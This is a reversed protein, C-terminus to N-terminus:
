GHGANQRVQRVVKAMVDFSDPRSSFYTIGFRQRTAEISAAMEDISGFLLFPTSMADEVSLQIGLPEVHKCFGAAAAERDDTEHVWQLLANLEIEGFRSGAADKVIDIRGDLYDVTWDPQHAHGFDINRILGSFGVIDGYRGGLKLVRAGNGGILIPVHPTVGDPLGTSADVLSYHAGRHNVTEGALLDKLLPLAESLRDVRPGPPDYRLGANDYDPKAHGAGIGLEFRGGTLASITAAERALLLPNWFDNNLVLTGFRMTASAEAACLITTLAPRMGVVTHDAFTVVDFGAAEARKTEDRLYTRQDVEAPGWQTASMGFRIRRHARDASM